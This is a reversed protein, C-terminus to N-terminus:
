HPARHHMLVYFSLCKSGPSSLRVCSTTAWVIQMATMDPVSLSLVSPEVSYELCHDSSHDICHEFPGNSWVEDRRRWPTLRRSRTQVRLARSDFFKDCLESSSSGATCFMRYFVRHLMRHFTRDFRQSPISSDRCRTSMRSSMLTRARPTRTFCRCHQSCCLLLPTGLASPPTSGAGVVQAGNRLNSARRTALRRLMQTTRLAASATTRLIM